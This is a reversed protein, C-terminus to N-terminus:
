TELWESLERYQKDTLPNEGARAMRLEDRVATKLQAPTVAEPALSRAFKPLSKRERHLPKHTTKSSTEM